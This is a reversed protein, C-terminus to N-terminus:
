ENGFLEDAPRFHIREHLRSGLGASADRDKSFGYIRLGVLGQHLHSNELAAIEQEALPTGSDVFVTGFLGDDDRCIFPNAKLFGRVAPTDSLVKLGFCDPSGSAITQSLKRKFRLVGDRLFPRSAGIRVRSHGQSALYQFSFHFVAAVAGKRVYEDNSDKVGLSWIRPGDPEHLLLVGAVRIGGMKVLLLECQRFLEQKEAYPVIFGGDGHAKTIHPVYMGHYFEDFSAPDRTVEYELAHNRIKRLDSRVCEKNLSEPSCPIHVVGNVWCPIVLWPPSSLRRRQAYRLGIIALACDPGDLRVSHHANWLWVRGIRRERVPSDGFILGLILSKNQGETGCAIALPLGSNREIGDIRWLDVRLQGLLRRWRVVPTALFRLPAPMGAYVKKAWSAIGTRNSPITDEVTNM